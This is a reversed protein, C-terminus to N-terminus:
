RWRHTWGRAPVEIKEGNLELAAARGGFNEVVWSRDKFLYLGLENPGKLTTEFPRLM